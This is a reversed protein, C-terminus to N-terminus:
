INTKGASMCKPNINIKRSTSTKLTAIQLAQSAHARSTIVTSVRHTHTGRKRAEYFTQVVHKVYIATM